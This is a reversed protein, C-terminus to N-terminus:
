KVLNKHKIKQINNKQVYGKVPICQYRKWRFMAIKRSSLIIFLKFNCMECFLGVQWFRYWNQMKGKNLTYSVM